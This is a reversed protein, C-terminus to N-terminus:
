TEGFVLETIEKKQADSLLSFGSYDQPDTEYNVTQATEVYNFGFGDWDQLHVSFDVM